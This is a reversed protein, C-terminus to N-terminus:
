EGLKGKGKGMRREERGERWEGAAAFRGEQFWSPTQPTSYAGGATPDPAIGCGVDIKAYESLSLSM